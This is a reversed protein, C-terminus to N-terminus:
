KQQIVVVESHSGVTNGHVFTKRQRTYTCITRTVIM